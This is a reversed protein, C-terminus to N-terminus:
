ASERLDIQGTVAATILAARREKLLEISRVALAVLRQIRESKETTFSVIRSQEDLPPLPVSRTSALSLNLRSRTAGNALFGCEVRATASMALAIFQPVARRRDMRFRYCDAKVITPGLGPPAVCSRGLANNDDGLGAMLLDGELVEHGGNLAKRWHEDAIFAADGKYGSDGINQLRVVRVGEEVYHASTLGSGFPGDCRSLALKGLHAIEWHAPVEGLWEVGSDRMPVNRDLGKTVAQTILAQRKEKLLEIFRTKKEILTDIRATEHDIFNVIKLQESEPPIPLPMRKIGDFRLAQRLGGGLGYFVKTVDYSRMLHALYRSCIGSVSVALYASTIIGRETVLGSRLSRKDNQLDTFRFVIDGPDVIQYTEFSEPLLGEATSIDKRKINGYSLSLLNTEKMSKNAVKKERSYSFFPATEWHSPIENLWEIDSDRYCAYPKLNM